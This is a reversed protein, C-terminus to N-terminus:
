GPDAGQWSYGTGYHVRVPNCDPDVDRFAKRIHKIYSSVSEPEITKDAADMLQERSKVHGPWQALCEVMRFQTYTLAVPRERWWVQMRDLNMRLPPKNIETPAPADTAMLADFMKFLSNVRTTIIPLSLRKSLYDNAGLNLGIIEDLESDLATLFLIPLIPSRVRLERCLERGGDIDDGLQIDIIAMDPLSQAFARQAAPRDPYIDVAYHLRELAAKYNQALDAEDEIIAIRRPM